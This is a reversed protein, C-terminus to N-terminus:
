TEEGFEVQVLALGITVNRAGRITCQFGKSSAWGGQDKYRGGEPLCRKSFCSGVLPHASFVCYLNLTEGTGQKPQLSLLLPHLARIRNLRNSEELRNTVRRPMRASPANVM